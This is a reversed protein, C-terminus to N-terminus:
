QGPSQLGGADIGCGHGVHHKGVQVHIVNAPQQNVAHPLPQTRVQPDVQRGGLGLEGQRLLRDTSGPARYAVFSTATSPWM